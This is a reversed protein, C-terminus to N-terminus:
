FEFMQSGRGSVLLWSTTAAGVRWAFSLLPLQPNAREYLWPATMCFYWPTVKPETLVVTAAAAVWMHTMIKHLFVGDVLEMFMNVREESGVADISGLPGLTRVQLSSSSSNLYVQSSNYGPFCWQTLLVCECGFTFVATTSVFIGAPCTCAATLARTQWPETPPLSEARNEELTGCAWMWVTVCSSAAWHLWLPLWQLPGPNPAPAAVREDWGWLPHLLRPPPLPRLGAM